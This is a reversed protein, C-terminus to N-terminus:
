DATLKEEITGGQSEKLVVVAEKAISVGAAVPNVRDLVGFTGDKLTVLWDNGVKALAVKGAYHERLLSAAAEGAAGKAAAEAQGQALISDANGGTKVDAGGVKVRLGDRPDFGNSGGFGIDADTLGGLSNDTLNWGGRWTRTVPRPEGKSDVWISEDPQRLADTETAEIWVGDRPATAQGFRDATQRETEAAAQITDKGGLTGCGTTVLLVATLLGAIILAPTKM